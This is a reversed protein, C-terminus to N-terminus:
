IAKIIISGIWFTHKLFTSLDEKLGCKYKLLKKEGIYM